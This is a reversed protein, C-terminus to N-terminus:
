VELYDMVKSNFELVKIQDYTVNSYLDTFQWFASDLSIVANFNSKNYVIRIFHELEMKEVYYKYFKKMHEIENTNAFIIINKGGREVFDMLALHAPNLKPDIQKFQFNLLDISNTVYKGLPSLYCPGNIKERTILGLFEGINGLVKGIVM